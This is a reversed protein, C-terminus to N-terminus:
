VQLIVNLLCNKRPCKSFSSTSLSYQRHHIPGPIQAAQSQMIMVKFLHQAKRWNYIVLAIKGTCQATRILGQLAPAPTPPPCRPQQPPPCLCITTTPEWFTREEPRALDSRVLSPANRQIWFSGRTEEVDSTAPHLVWRLREQRLIYRLSRAAAVRRPHLKNGKQRHPGNGPPEATSINELHKEEERRESQRHRGRM